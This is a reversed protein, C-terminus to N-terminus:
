CINRYGGQATLELSRECALLTPLIVDLHADPFYDGQLLAEDLLKGAAGRTPCGKPLRRRRPAAGRWM